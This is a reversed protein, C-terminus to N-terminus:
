ESLWSTIMEISPVSGQHRVEGQVVLIPTMLMDVAEAKEQCPRLSEDMEPSWAKARGDITDFDEPRSPPNKVVMSVRGWDMNLGAKQAVHKAAGIEKGISEGFKKVEADTYVMTRVNLSLGLEQTIRDVRQRTLDCRPCPPHVGIIWVEKDM